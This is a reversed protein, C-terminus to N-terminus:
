WEMASAVGMFEWAIFLTLLNDSVVLVLMAFTFFGIWRFYDEFRSDGHMYKRSFLHVLFSVLTVVILLALTLGDIGVGVRWDQGGVSMWVFDWSQGVYTAHGLALVAACALSVGMAGIGLWDCVKAGRKGLFALITASLLPMACLVLCLVVGTPM